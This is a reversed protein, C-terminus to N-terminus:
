AQSGDKNSYLYLRDDFTLVWHPKYVVMIAIMIGTTFAESWSLLFYFLLVEEFLYDAPYAGALALVSVGLACCAFYCAGGVMFANIFIYVFYNAPLKKQAFRLVVASILVPWAVFILFNLGFAGWELTGYTCLGALVIAMGILAMWPGALLTFATSGLLHFSLGPKFGGSLSWFLMIVVCAGMWANLAVPDLKRWTIRRVAEALVALAMGNTLWLTPTDFFQSPFNM